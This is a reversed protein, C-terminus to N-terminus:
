VRIGGALEKLSDTPALEGDIYMQFWIELVFLSWLQQSYDRKGLEHAQIMHEVQATKFLGREQAHAGLLFQRLPKALVTQLWHALPMNFGKKPRFLVEDPIYRKALKKLLVKTDMGQVKLPYPLRAAFEALDVDLLPARAELSHAMTMVDMKPLLEDSLYTMADGYLVRDVPTPGDAEDWVKRYWEDPHHGNLYRQLEATYLEERYSRMARDFVFAGRADTRGAELVQKMGNLMRPRLKSRSHAYSGIPERLFHPIAQRYRYAMAEVLPRTYGAFLEDGGDGNLVVTVHERAFKAIYYTPLASSDAFPEGFEHLISPISPWLEDDLVSEQAITGYRQSVMQAFPREDFQPDAFGMTLTTIPNASEQAMIATVLSSDVGGSLFSGVPVDGIMRRRVAQRLLRDLEDLAENETIHLQNAFSLYWYRFTNLEGHEFIAYHGPLLKHIGYFISEDGPVAMYTLYDDLALYNLDPTKEEFCLMANLTSAFSLKGHNLSYYLPKKGFPDRALVLRQERGDWIGFAFMGRIRRLLEEIGWILYGAILVETDTQTKFAYHLRLERKLERFNYIEGNFTIAIQGSPDTMPQRGNISLDIISLRRHGFVVNGRKSCWIGADDPGRSVMQNLAKHVKNESHGIAGAIGCM